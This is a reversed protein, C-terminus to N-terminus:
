RENFLPQGLPAKREVFTLTDTPVRFWILNTGPLEVDVENGSPSVRNIQRVSDSGKMTVKDGVQPMIPLEPQSAKKRSKAM